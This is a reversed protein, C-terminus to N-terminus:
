RAWDFVPVDESLTSKQSGVFVTTGTMKAIARCLAPLFVDNAFPRNKASSTSHPAGSLRPVAKAAKKYVNGARPDTWFYPGPDQDVGVWVIRSFGQMVGWLTMRVVSSGNDPLIGPPLQEKIMAGLIRMLDAELNQKKRTVINARGYVYRRRNLEEPFDQLSEKRVPWNTRLSFVQPPRSLIQHTRLRENLFPDGDLASDSESSLISPVFDHIPWFNIGVSTGSAITMFNEETLDNVSSGGGLIFLTQGDAPRRESASEQLTPLCLEDAVKAVLAFDRQCQRRFVAFRLMESFWLPAELLERGYKSLTRSVMM